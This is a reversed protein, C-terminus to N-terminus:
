KHSDVELSERFIHKFIQDYEQTMKEQIEQTNREEDLKKQFHDFANLGEIYAITENIVKLLKPEKVKITKKKLYQLSKEYDGQGFELADLLEKTHPNTKIPPNKQDRKYYIYGLAKQTEQNEPDSKLSDKMFDAAKGYDGMNFASIAMQSLIIPKFFEQESQTIKKLTTEALDIATQAIAAAKINNQKNAARLAFRGMGLAEYAQIREDSYIKRMLENDSEGMGALYAVYQTWFTDTSYDKKEEAYSSNISSCLFCMLM